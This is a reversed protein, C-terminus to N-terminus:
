SVWLQYLDDRKWWGLGEDDTRLFGLSVLTSEVSEFINKQLDPEHIVTKNYYLPNKKFDIVKGNKKWIINCM